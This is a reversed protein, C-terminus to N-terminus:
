SRQSNGWGGVGWGAFDSAVTPQYQINADDNARNMYASIPTMSTGWTTPYQGSMSSSNPLGFNINRSVAWTAGGDMSVAVAIRRPDGDGSYFDYWSMALYGTSPEYFICDQFGKNEARHGYSTSGGTFLTDVEVFMTGPLPSTVQSFVQAITDTSGALFLCVLPVLFYVKRM